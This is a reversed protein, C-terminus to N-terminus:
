RKSLPTGPNHKLDALSNVMWEEVAVTPTTLKGKVEDEGCLRALITKRRVPSPVIFDCLHAEYDNPQHVAPFLYYSKTNFMCVRDWVGAWEM